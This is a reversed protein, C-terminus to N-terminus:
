PESVPRPAQDRDPGGSAPLWYVVIVDDKGPESQYGVAQVIIPGAPAEAAQDGPFPIGFERYPAWRLEAGRVHDSAAHRWSRSGCVPCPERTGHPVLMPYNGLYNILNVPKGCRKCHGWTRPSPGGDLEGHYVSGSGPCRSM